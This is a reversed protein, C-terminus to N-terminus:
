KSSIDVHERNSIKRAITMILKSLYDVLRFLLHAKSFINLGLRFTETDMYDFRTSKKAIFVGDRFCKSPDNIIAEIYKRDTQVKNVIESNTLSVINEKGNFYHLIGPNSLFKFAGTIGSVQINLRPNLVSIIGGMKYNVYNLSPQDIPVGKECCNKWEQHWNEFFVKTEKTDKVWYVGSNYYEKEIPFGYGLESFTNKIKILDMSEREALPLHSDEVFSLEASFDIFSDINQCILTDTDVFLYDGDVYQRASTKIYRSKEVNSYQKPTNIKIIEAYNFIESRDHHLTEFTLEDVLVVIKPNKIHKLISLVSILMQNYYHDKSTSTLVYVIKYM